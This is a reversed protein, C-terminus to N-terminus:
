FHKQSCIDRIEQVSKARVATLKAYMWGFSEFNEGQHKSIHRIYNVLIPLMVNRITSSALIQMIRQAHM